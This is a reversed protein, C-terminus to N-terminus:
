SQLPLNKWLKPHVDALTSTFSRLRSENQPGCRISVRRGWTAVGAEDDSWDMAVHEPLTEILVDDLDTTPAQGEEDFHLEWANLNRSKLCDPWEILCIGSTLLKPIDLLDADQTTNLRYLDLHHVLFKGEDYTNHLM